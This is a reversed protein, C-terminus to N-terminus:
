PKGKKKALASLREPKKDRVPKGGGARTWDRETTAKGEERKLGGLEGM